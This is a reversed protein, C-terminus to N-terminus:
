DDAEVAPDPTTLPESEVERSIHRVRVVASLAIPVCTRVAPVFCGITPALAGYMAFLKEAEELDRAKLRQTGSSGAAALAISSPYGMQDGAASAVFAVVIVLWM